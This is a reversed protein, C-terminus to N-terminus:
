TEEPPNTTPFVCEGAVFDRSRAIAPVETGAALSVANEVSLSCMQTQALV